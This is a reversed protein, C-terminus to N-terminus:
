AKSALMEYAEHVSGAIRTNYSSMYSKAAFEASAQKMETDVVYIFNRLEDINRSMMMQVDLAVSYTSAKKLIMDAPQFFNKLAAQLIVNADSMLFEDDMYAECYLINNDIEMRIRGNDIM